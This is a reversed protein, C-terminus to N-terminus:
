SDTTLQRHRFAHLVTPVDCHWERLLLSALFGELENVVGLWLGVGLLPTPRGTLFGTVLAGVLLLGLVKSSWMHYAAIRGYKTLEVTARSVHVVILSVLPLWLGDYADPVAIRLSVAAAIFFITDVITDAYRLTETATATRRAVVGEIVDSVLAAVVVAALVFGPFRYCALVFLAPACAARLAVLLQPASLM